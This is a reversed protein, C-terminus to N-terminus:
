ENQEKAIEAKLIVKYADVFNESYTLKVLPLVAEIDDKHLFVSNYYNYRNRSHWKYDEANVSIFNDIDSLSVDNNNYKNSRPHYFRFELKYGYKSYYLKDRFVPTYRVSARNGILIDLHEENVPGSVSLVGHRFKLVVDEVDKYRSFYVSRGKISWGERYGVSIQKELYESLGFHFDMDHWVSSGEFMVKYLFTDYYVNESHKLRCPLSVDSLYTVLDKNIVARKVRPRYYM